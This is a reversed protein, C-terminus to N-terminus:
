TISHDADAHAHDHQSPTETVKFAVIRAVPTTEFPATWIM